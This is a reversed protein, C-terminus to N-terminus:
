SKSAEYLIQGKEIVYQIFLNNKSMKKFESPSYVLIDIAVKPMLIKYFEDLRELFRKNTKKVIIIDIDSLSHTKGTAMSGILIVKEVGKKIILPLIRKLENNLKEKREEASVEKLSM